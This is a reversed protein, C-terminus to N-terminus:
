YYSYYARYKIISTDVKNQGILKLSNRDRTLVLLIENERKLKIYDRLIKQADSYKEVPTLSNFNFKYQYNCEM